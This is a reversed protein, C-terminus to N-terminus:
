KVTISNVLNFITTTGNDYTVVVQGAKNIVFSTATRQKPAPPCVPCPPCVVPPPCVIPPPCSPCVPAQDLTITVTDKTGTTAVYKYAGKPLNGVIEISTSAPITTVQGNVVASILILSLFLLYKM